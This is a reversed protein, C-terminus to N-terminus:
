REGSNDEFHQRKQDVGHFDKSKKWENTVESIFINFLLPSLVSGQRVGTHSSFKRSLRGNVLVRNQVDRYMDSIVMWVHGQIGVSLLRYLIGNRWALDYAKTADLFLLFTHQQERRELRSLCLEKLIFQQDATNRKKRFGGQEEGILGNEELFPELRNYIITEYLKAIVSMLAIPRYNDMNGKSGRKKWIPVLTALLWDEPVYQHKWVLRFFNLLAPVVIDGGQKLMENVFGNGDAAKGNPIKSLAKVVEKRTIDRNLANQAAKSAKGGRNALAKAVVKNVIDTFKRSHKGGAFTKEISEFHDAWAEICEEGMVIMGGATTMTTPLPTHQKQGRMRSIRRFFEQKSSLQLQACNRRDALKKKKATLRKSQTRLQRFKQRAEARQSLTSDDDNSVQHLEKWAARKAASLKALSKDYGLIPNVGPRMDAKPGFTKAAAEEVSTVLGHWMTEIIESSSGNPISNCYVRMFRGLSTQMNKAFDTQTWAQTTRPTRFLKRYTVVAKHKSRKINRVQNITKAVSRSMQLWLAVASHDSVDNDIVLMNELNDAHTDALVYDIISSQHGRQGSGHWTPTGRAWYGNLIVLDHNTCFNRILNGNANVNEKADGADEGVHGNLDGMVFVQGQSQYLKTEASIANWFEEAPKRTTSQTPGYIFLINSIDQGKGVRVWCRTNNHAVVTIIDCSELNERIWVGVGYPRSDADDNTPKSDRVDDYWRYGPVVPPKHIGLRTDLLAVVDYGYLCGDSNVM